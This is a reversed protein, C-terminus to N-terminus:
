LDSATTKDPAAKKAKATLYQLLTWIASREDADIGDERMLDVLKYELAKDTIAPDNPPVVYGGAGVNISDGDSDSDNVKRQRKSKNSSASSATPKRAALHPSIMMDCYKAAAIFFAAM